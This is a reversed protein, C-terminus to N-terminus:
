LLVAKVRGMEARSALVEVASLGEFLTVAHPPLAYKGRLCAREMLSAAYLEGGTAPSAVLFRMEGSGKLLALTRSDPLGDTNECLLITEETEADDESLEVNSAALMRRIAARWDNTVGADLACAFRVCRHDPRTSEYESLRKTLAQALARYRDFASEKGGAEPAINRLDRGSELLPRSLIEAGATNAALLLRIADLHIAGGQEGDAIMACVGGALDCGGGILLAALARLNENEGYADASAAFLLRRNTWDGQALDGADVTEFAIGAMAYELADGLRTHQGLSVIFTTESLKTENILKEM